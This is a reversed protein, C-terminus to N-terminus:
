NRLMLELCNDFDYHLQTFSIKIGFSNNIFPIHIEFPLENTITIFYATYEYTGKKEVRLVKVGNDNAMRENICDLISRSMDLNQNKSEIRKQKPIYYDCNKKICNHQMRQDRTLFGPHGNYQCYGVCNNLGTTRGDICRLHHVAPFTQM